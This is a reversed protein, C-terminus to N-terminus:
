RGAGRVIRFGADALIDTLENVADVTRHRFQESLAPWATLGPHQKREECRTPAYEWGARVREDVWRAHELEALREVDVASLEAGPGRGLRPSITCDVAALKRGIDAAQARNDAQLRASLRDWPQLSPDDPTWEGRERRRHRYREHIVRALRGVLDEGILDPDAAVAVVGFSTVRGHPDDFLGPAAPTAPGTQEPSAGPAADHLYQSLGDLRVVIRAIQPRGLREAAIAVKLAHEEDEQCVLLRDPPEAAEWRDLMPLMDTEHVDFRCTDALFPYRVLLGDLVRHAAPDVLRVGLLDPRDREVRWSRAAEVVVAAGFGGLGTVLIRPPRGDVAVLPEDVFMRRAALQDVDFFDLRVRSGNPRALYAAQFTACLDHDPVHAFVGVRAQTGARFRAVALAVALNTAGSAACAYVTAAGALGAARLVAPDRADGVIRLAEGVTVFEDGQSRVEVVEIGRGQIKRTITDAVVTDGCVIAHGRARRARLRSVEVSFLLRSAEFLAYATAAPATFRAIELLVPLPLGGSQQLPDAGLVFLQLDYYVVDAFRHGYETRTAVYEDLGLYGMVLSALGLATFLVRFVGIPRRLTESSQQVAM